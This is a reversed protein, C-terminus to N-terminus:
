LLKLSEELAGVIVLNERELIEVNYEKLISEKATLNGEVLIKKPNFILSVMEIIYFFADEGYKLALKTLDRLNKEGVIEGNIILSIYVGRKSSKIYVLREELMKNEKAYGILKLNGEYNYYVEEGLIENLRKLDENNLSNNNEVIVALKKIEKYSTRLKDVIDKLLSVEDGFIKCAEGRVIIEGNKNALNYVINDEFLQAILIYREEEAIKYRKPKRGGSSKDVGVSKIKNEDLLELLIKRVTTHSLGCEETIVKRTVIGHSKIIELIIKKNINKLDFPNGYASM